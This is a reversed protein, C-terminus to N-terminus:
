VGLPMDPVIASLLLHNARAQHDDAECPSRNLRVTRHPVPHGAAAVAWPAWIVRNRSQAGRALLGTTTDTSQRFLQEKSAGRFSNHPKRRLDMHFYPPAARRWGRRFGTILPAQCGPAIAQVGGVARM